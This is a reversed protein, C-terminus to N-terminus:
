LLRSFALGLLVVPSVSLRALCIWGLAMTGRNVAPISLVGLCIPSTLSVGLLIKSYVTYLNESKRIVLALVFTPVILMCAILIVLMWDGFASMGGSAAIDGPHNVYKLYRVFVLLAAIALVVAYGAAVLFLQARLPILKM